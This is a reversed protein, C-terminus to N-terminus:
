SKSSKTIKGNGTVYERDAGVGEVWYGKKVARDGSGAESHHAAATRSREPEQQHAAGRLAEREKAGASGGRRGSIAEGM